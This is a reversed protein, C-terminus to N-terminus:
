RGRQGTPRRLVLARWRIGYQASAVVLCEAAVVAVAMLYPFIATGHATSRAVLGLTIAAMLFFTAYKSIRTPEPRIARRRLKSTLGTGFVVGDRLLAAVLLWIPLSEASVLLVLATLALFKDAIPDLIAGLETRQDLVRAVLGDLGDSVAAVVFAALAAVPRGSLLLWAFIPVLAIRALTISNPLNM